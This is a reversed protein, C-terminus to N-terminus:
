RAAQFHMADPRKWKGGWVWGEKAFANLVQPVNRFHGNPSGLQNRAVDLDIACGWSHMSPTTLGRKLRPNFAGGYKDAGWEALVQMNKGSAEYIEQLVKALSESCKKHITIGKIPKGDYTMAYPPIITVLNKMMWEPDARYVGPKGDVPTIGPDGYFSNCDRELPWTNM